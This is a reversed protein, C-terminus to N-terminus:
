ANNFITESENFIRRRAMKCYDPNIEIGIFGRENRRAVIGTTGSGAFPDLVVGGDPCGALVCPTILEEPFAAFHRERLKKTAVSWVDRKNRREKYEYANGSKTRYFEGPEATYKSGGYRPAKATMKKTYGPMDSGNQQEVNQQLRAITAPAVPEAIAEADFYYTKSKTLLFIYEHSKTCRDTVSEPMPNPKAWIIDQRLYWGDARLAFALMWPIGILDKPKCSTNAATTTATGRSHPNSAQKGSVRAEGSGKRSGAYTDGINVWCTGNERLVRRAERFVIVLREIFEEPTREKGIQGDVNYDRLAFYPPSTVICDVSEDPLTQLVQLADGQYIESRTM